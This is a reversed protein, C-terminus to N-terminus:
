DEEPLNLLTRAAEVLETRGERGAVHLAHTPDHTLRNTLTHALYRLVHEPTKEGRLMNLARQLTEERISEARTRYNVITGVADQMRVWAMFDEVRAEIIENAQEAAESRSRLNEDIVEQLDDVTYLYVDDLEGVEQEIDRPVAIDVMFMPKHRRKKLAREVMGKGLIPLPSATSSIVIDAQPLRDPIAPLAIAEAQFAEALAAARQVTRNAVIMRAVRNARLHRAALEITEGAGILLVTHRSLDGFIQRALTVAAFAVSVASRGIATDTRVQKAVAFAHQFLRGLHRGLTGAERAARYADKIQGLIQPEGLVMSDLGCAVRLTHAVASREQYRYLYPEIDRPAIRHFDGLWELVYPEDNAGGLECYVETRNCTSLIAAEHVGPVRILEGLATPLQDPGFALRERMRVPATTHNLGLTYIMHSTNAAPM